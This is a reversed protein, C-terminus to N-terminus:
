CIIRKIVRLQHTYEGTKSSIIGQSDINEIKVWGSAHIISANDVLIGVHTISGEESGFFALDGPMSESLFDVLEGQLVQQSADRPLLYGGIGYVVQVLGSCDIGLVSKGGWLYPANLYQIATELIRHVDFRGVALSDPEILSWIEGDASFEDGSLDYIISGGPLLKSQNIKTNYIINYPHQLRDAKQHRSKLFTSDTVPNIMRIDAWGTYGDTINEVYLWKEQKVLIKVYEGFLLQSVMESRESNYARLPVLPHTILGYM